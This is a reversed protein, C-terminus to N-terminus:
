IGLYWKILYWLYVLFGIYVAGYLIICIIVTWDFTKEYDKKM